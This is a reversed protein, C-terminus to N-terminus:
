AETTDVGAADDEIEALHAALGAKISMAEYRQRTAPDLRKFADAPAVGVPEVYDDAAKWFDLASRPGTPAQELLRADREKKRDRLAAFCADEADISACPPASLCVGHHNAVLRVLHEIRPVERVNQPGGFERELAGAAGGGAGSLLSHGRQPDLALVRLGMYEPRTRYFHHEPEGCTANVFAARPYVAVPSAERVICNWQLSQKRWPEYGKVGGPYLLDGKAIIEGAFASDGLKKWCNYGLTVVQSTTHTHKGGQPGSSRVSQVADLDLGVHGLTFPEPARTADRSAAATRARKTPPSKRVGRNRTEYRHHSPAPTAPPAPAAAPAPALALVVSPPPAPAVVPAPAPADPAVTLPVPLRPDMPANRPKSRHVCYDFFSGAAVDEGLLPPQTYCRVVGKQGSGLKSVYERLSLAQRVGGHTEFSVKEDSLSAYDHGAVVCHVNSAKISLLTYLADKTAGLGVHYRGNFFRTWDTMAYPEVIRATARHGGRSTSSETAVKAFDDIGVVCRGRLATCNQGFARDSADKSDNQWFYVLMVAKAVGIDVLFQPLALMVLGNQNLSACDMYIVVFKEGNLDSLLNLIIEDVVSSANKSGMGIEPLLFHPWERLVDTAGHLARIFRELGMGQTTQKFVPDELASADDHHYAAAVDLSAFAHDKMWDAQADAGLEKAREGLLATAFAKFEAQFSRINYRKARHAKLHRQLREMRAACAQVEDADGWMLAEQKSVHARDLACAVAKEVKDVNHDVIMRQLGLMGETRLLDTVLRRYTTLSVESNPNLACYSAYLATVGDVDSRVCRVYPLDPLPRTVMHFHSAVLAVVSAPTRNTGGRAGKPAALLYHTGDPTREVFAVGSRLDIGAALAAEVVNLLSKLRYQSVGLWRELFSLCLATRRGVNDFLLNVIVVAEDRLSQAAVIRNYRGVLVCRPTEQCRNGCACPTGVLVEYTDLGARDARRRRTTRLGLFDVRSDGQPSVGYWYKHSTDTLFCVAEWCCSPKGTGDDARLQLALACVVQERLRKAEKIDVPM